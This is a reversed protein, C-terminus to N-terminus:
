ALSWTRASGGADSTGIGVTRIIPDGLKPNSLEARATRVRQATRRGGSARYGAYIADDTSAPHRSLWLEIFDRVASASEPAISASVWSTDADRSRVRRELDPTDHFLPSDFTITVIGGWRSFTGM